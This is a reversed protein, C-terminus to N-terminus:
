TKFRIGLVTERSLPVTGRVLLSTKFSEIMESVHTIHKDEMAKGVAAYAKAENQKKKIAGVGVGRRM